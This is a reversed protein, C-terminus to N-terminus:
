DRLTEAGAKERWTQEEQLEGSQIFDICEITSMEERDGASEAANM